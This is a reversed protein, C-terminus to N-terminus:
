RWDFGAALMVWVATPQGDKMAPAYRFQQAVRLVIEDLEIVASSLAERQTSQEVLGSTSPQFQELSLPESLVRSPATLELLTRSDHSRGDGHGGAGAQSGSVAHSGADVQELPAIYRGKTRLRAAVAQGAERNTSGSTKLPWRM